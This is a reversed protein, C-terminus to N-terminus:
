GHLQLIDNITENPSFVMVIDAVLEISQNLPPAPFKLKQRSIMIFGSPFM